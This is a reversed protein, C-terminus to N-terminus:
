FSSLTLSAQGLDRNCTRNGLTSRRSSILARIKKVKNRKKGKLMMRKETTLWVCSTPDIAVLHMADEDRSGHEAEVISEGVEEDRSARREVDVSSKWRELGSWQLRM